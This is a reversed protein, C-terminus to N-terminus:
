MVEPTSVGLLILGNSIVQGVAQSLAIRADRVPQEDVLIKHANYWTHFDVALERLYTAVSHPESNLAANAVIEPYRDLQRM